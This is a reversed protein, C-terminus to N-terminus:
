ALGELVVFLARDLEDRESYARILLDPPAPEPLPVPAYADVLFPDQPRYPLSGVPFPRGKMVVLKGGDAVLRYTRANLRSTLFVVAGVLALIVTGVVWRTIARRARAAFSTNGDQM